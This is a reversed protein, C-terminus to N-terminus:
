YPSACGKSAVNLHQTAVNACDPNVVVPAGGDDGAITIQAGCRFGASTWLPTSSLAGNLYEYVVNAGVDVPVGSAGVGANKLPSTSPQYVLCPGLPSPAALANTVFDGPVYDEMGPNYGGSTACHDFSYTSEGEGDFAVAQFNAVLSNTTKSTSTLGMNQPEKRIIFGNAANIVSVEDIATNVAGASSIGEVGGIVVDNSLITNTIIHFADTCPVQATKGGSAYCGSDIRIGMLVPQYVINGLVKNNVIPGPVPPAVSAMFSRGVLAIGDNIGEIVNNAVVSNNTEELFIGYDGTYPADSQWAPAPEDATNRSNIYNRLLQLSSTRTAEIANGHFDYFESETVAVNNSNDGLHLLRSQRWRNPHLVLMHDFTLNASGFGIVIVSGADPTNAAAEFDKSEVHLQSFNWYQCGDVTLPPASGDGALFARREHQATVTIQKEMTGSPALVANPSAPASADCVINLLGTTAADYTGDELTITMGPAVYQLAKRFTRWPADPEACCNDDSGTPSLYITTIPTTGIAIVGPGRCAGGLALAVAVAAGIHRARAVRDDYGSRRPRAASM